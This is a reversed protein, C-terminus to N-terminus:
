EDVPYIKGDCIMKRLQNNEHARVRSNVFKKAGKLARAMGRTGNSHDVGCYKAAVVKPEGVGTAAIHVGRLLRHKMKRKLDATDADGRQHNTKM